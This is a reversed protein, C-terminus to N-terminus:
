QWGVVAVRGSGSEGWGGDKNIQLMNKEKKKVVPRWEISSIESLIAGITM